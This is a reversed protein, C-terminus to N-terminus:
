KNNIGALFAELLRYALKIEEKSISKLDKESVMQQDNSSNANFIDLMLKIVFKDEMLSSHIENIKYILNNYLVLDGIKM